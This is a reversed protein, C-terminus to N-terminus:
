MMQGAMISKGGITEYAYGTLRVRLHTYGANHVDFRAWGYCTKGQNQFTLGLYLGKAQFWNGYQFDSSMCPGNITKHYEISVSEMIAMTLFGTSPGILAGEPLAAAYRSSGDLGNAGTAGQGTLTAYYNYCPRRGCGCSPDPGNTDQETISFDTMQDNKLSLDYTHNSILHNAPTYVIKANTPQALAVLCVLAAGAALVYATVHRVSKSVDHTARSLWASQKM